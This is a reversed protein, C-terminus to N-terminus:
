HLLHTLVGSYRYCSELPGVSFVEDNSEGGGLFFSDHCMSVSRLSPTKTELLYDLRPPTSLGPRASAM